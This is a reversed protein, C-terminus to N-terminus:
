EDNTKLGHDHAMCWPQTSQGSIVGLFIKFTEFVEFVLRREM